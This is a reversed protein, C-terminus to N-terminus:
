KRWSEDYANWFQETQQANPQLEIVQQQALEPQVPIEQWAQYSFNWMKAWDAFQLQHQNEYPAGGFVRSFIKGGGNNIVVLRFQLEPRKQALWGSSLDYLTTLDGFIGWATETAEVCGFFTSLQGDIGNMGRNAFTHPQSKESILDWERIPLSNGLYLSDNAAIFHQLQFLLGPESRPFQKFLQRLKEYQIQDQAFVERYDTRLTLVDQPSNIKLLENLDGQIHQSPRAIGASASRTFSFVPLQAFKEELQRWFSTTPVGGIRIVGDFDGHSLIKDSSRLELQALKRNGRLGSLAEAYIPANLTFLFKVVAAREQPLLEGVIVVPKQTFKM